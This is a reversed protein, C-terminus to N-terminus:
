GRALGCHGLRKNGLYEDNVTEWRWMMCASGICNASDRYTNVGVAGAGHGKDSYRFHPCWKEKAKAETVTM